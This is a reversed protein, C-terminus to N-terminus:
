WCGAIYHLTSVSGSVKDLIQTIIKKFAEFARM